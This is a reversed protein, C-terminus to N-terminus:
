QALRRRAIQVQRATAVNGSVTKVESSAILGTAIWIAHRAVAYKGGDRKTEHWFIHDGTIFIATAISGWAILRGDSPHLGLLSNKDFCGSPNVHQCTISSAVDASFAYAIVTDSIALEHRRVFHGVKEPFGRRHFSIQAEASRLFPLLIMALM